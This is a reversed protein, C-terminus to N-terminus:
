IHTWMQRHVIRWINSQNVGFHKALKRQSIGAAHLGRIELVQPETLVANIRATGRKLREPHLRPGSRDGTARREPAPTVHRNRGKADRDAANDTRTGLWLHDPRVCPPNDCRHLVCLNEPIPGVLQAYVYRHAFVPPISADYYWRGYGFRTHAGTWVWCTDSKVVRQWFREDPPVTSKKRGGGWPRRGVPDGTSKWRRYHRDCWSRAIANRNCDAVSCTSQPQM